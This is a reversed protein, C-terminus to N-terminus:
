NLWRPRLLHRFDRMSARSVHDDDDLTELDEIKSIFHDVVYVRIASTLDAGDRRANILAVLRAMTTAEARAIEELSVWFLAELRIDVTQGAITVSRKVFGSNM